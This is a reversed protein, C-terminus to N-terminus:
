ARCRSAAPCLGGGCALRGDPVSAVRGEEMMGDPYKEWVEDCTFTLIPAFQRVMAELMNALVSQVSRREVSDAADAYLRDKVADFYESSISVIFDYWARYASHFHYDEYAQTAEEVLAQLRALAWKDFELMEDASVFDDNTFDNLNSLLYRFTNRIRRYADSTREFITYSM